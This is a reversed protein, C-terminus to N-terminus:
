RPGEATLRTVIAEINRNLDFAEEVRERGRRGMATRTDPRCALYQITEALLPADRDEILLGSEGHEVLEGVSPLPTTVVPVGCALAEVLVNPIGWHIERVAPLVFLDAERYLPLLQGQTVYGTFHVQEVLGEREVQLRLRGELPGGGAITARFDVGREKLIRCAEVLYRFGKCELLSGVSLIRLPGSPARGNGPRFLSLDLGHYSVHVRDPSVGRLSSLYSRNHDTCTLTFAASQLKEPLLIPDFFIDHAHCTLSWPIGTLRSMLLAATAPYTAWHAHLRRVGAQSALRAFYISKPLFALSKLLTVPKRRLDGALEAVLSSIARPSAVLARAVAGLVAPSLLYPAYHTAPLLSYADEQTTKQRQSRLSFIVVQVGRDRLAVLERLIFTEDYCPFQSVVYGVRPRGNSASMM